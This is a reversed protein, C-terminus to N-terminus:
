CPEQELLDHSPSDAKASQISIPNEETRIIPEGDLKELNPLRRAVEIRWQEVEHSEYLPNGVFVLDRLNPLEQLKAFENWERVLNNSMYLVRLNKMAQIGKMKEIYNYSIWIEMLTDGLVEFGAFGAIKEIMNTSLSLKECNALVALANDMKEIPPWQFSLIVETAKAAEQENEEEWRRIAEKCTTPKASAM